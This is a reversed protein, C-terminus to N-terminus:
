TIRRSAACDFIESAAATLGEVLAPAMAPSSLRGAYGVAASRGGDRALISGFARGIARADDPFLTEDVIGRIDYERLLTPHLARAGSASM